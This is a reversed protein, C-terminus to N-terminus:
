IVALKNSVETSEAGKEAEPTPSINGSSRARALNAPKAQTPKAPAANVGPKPPTGGAGLPPKGAALAPAGPGLNASSAPRPPAGAGAGSGVSPKVAPAAGATPKTAAGAVAPKSVAPKAAANVVPKAPKGADGPPPPPPPPPPAAGGSPGDADGEGSAPADEPVPASTPKNDTGAKKAANKQAWTMPKAPEAKSDSGAAAGPKSVAPKVGPKTAGTTTAATAKMGQFGGGVASKAQPKVAAAVTPKGGVKPKAAAESAASAATAAAAETPAQETDTEAKEAEATSENAAPAVPEEKALASDMTATADSATPTDAGKVPVADATHEASFLSLASAAGKLDTLPDTKGTDPPLEIASSAAAPAEVTTQPTEAPAPAPAPPAAAPEEPAPLPPTPPKTPPVVPEAAVVVAKSPEAASVADSASAIELPAQSSPTVKTPEMTPTAAATAPTSDAATTAAGPPAAPVDAPAPLTALGSSPAAPKVPEAPESQDDSSASTSKRHHHHHHHHHHHKHHEEKDKAEAVKEETTAAAPSSPAKKGLKDESATRSLKGSDARSAKGKPGSTATSTTSADDAIPAPKFPPLMSKSKPKPKEDESDSDSDDAAPAALKPKASKTAAVAAGATTAPAPATTAAATSASVSFASALRLSEAPSPLREAGADSSAGYTPRGVPRQSALPHQPLEFMPQERATSAGNNVSGRSGRTDVRNDPSAPTRRAPPAPSAVSASLSVIRAPGVVPAGNDSDGDVGSAMAVPSAMNSTRLPAAQGYGSSPVTAYHAKAASLSRARSTTTSVQSDRRGRGALQGAIQSSQSDRRGRTRQPSIEQSQSFGAASGAQATAADIQDTLKSLLTKIETLGSARSRAAIQQATPIHVAERLLEEPVRGNPLRHAAAALVKAAAGDMAQRVRAPSTSRLAAMVRSTEGEDARNAMPDLQRQVLVQLAAHLTGIKQKAVAVQANRAELLVQAQVAVARAAEAQSRSVIADRRIARMRTTLARVNARISADEEATLLRGADSASPVLEQREQDHQAPSSPGSAGSPPSGMRDPSGNVAVGKSSPPSTLAQTTAANVFSLLSAKAKHDVVPKRRAASSATQTSTLRQSSLQRTPSLRRPSTKSNANAHPAATYAGLHAPSGVNTVRLPPVPSTRGNM